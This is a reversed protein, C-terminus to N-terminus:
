GHLGPQLRSLCTPFAMFSSGGVVSMGHCTLVGRLWCLMEVDYYKDADGGGCLRAGLTWSASFICRTMEDFPTM